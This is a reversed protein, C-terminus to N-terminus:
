YWVCRFGVHLFTSTSKAKNRLSPKMLFPQHINQYSGGKVVKWINKISSSTDYQQSDSYSDRTWEWLNGLMGFINNLGPYSDQVLQVESSLQRKNKDKKSLLEDIFQDFETETMEDPNITEIKTENDFNENKSINTKPDIQANEIRPYVLGSSWPYQLNGNKTDITAAFEWELESPLDGNKARCYQRALLWNVKEVPFCATYEAKFRLESLYEYDSKYIKIWNYFERNTIEFQSIKFTKVEITKTSGSDNFIESQKQSTFKAGGILVPNNICDDEGNAYINGTSSFLFIMIFPVLVNMFRVGFM